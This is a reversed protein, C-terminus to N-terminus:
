NALKTDKLHLQIQHQFKTPMKKATDIVRIGLKMNNKFFDLYSKKRNWAVPPPLFDAEAEGESQSRCV